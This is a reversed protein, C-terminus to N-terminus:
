PDTSKDSDSSQAPPLPESDASQPPSPDAPSKRRKPKILKMVTAHDFGGTVAGITEYSLGTKRMEKWVKRRIEVIWIQRKRVSWWWWDEDVKNEKM